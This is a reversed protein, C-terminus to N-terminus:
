DGKKARSPRNRDRAQRACKPHRDQRRKAVFLRNCEPCERLRECAALLDAVRHLLATGFGPGAPSDANRHRQLIVRASRRKANRFTGRAWFQEAIPPLPVPQRHARALAGIREWLDRLEADPLPEGPARYSYQLDEPLRGASDRVGEALAFLADWALAREGSSLTDPDRPAFDDLLWTCREDVTAGIRQHALEVDRQRREFAARFAAPDPQQEHQTPKAPRKRM